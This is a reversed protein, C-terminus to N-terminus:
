KTPSQTHIISSFGRLLAKKIVWIYGPSSYEDGPYIQTMLFARKLPNEEIMWVWDGVLYYIMDILVSFLRKFADEHMIQLIKGYIRQGLPFILVLFLLVTMQNLHEYSMFLIM